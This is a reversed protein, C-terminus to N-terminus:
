KINHRYFIKYYFLYLYIKYEICVKFTDKYQPIIFENITDNCCICNRKIKLNINNEIVSKLLLKADKHIQTESPNKYFTCPDNEKKHAFHHIKIKGQRFILNRECEPCKYKDNKTAFRPSTYKGTDKNIAGLLKICNM